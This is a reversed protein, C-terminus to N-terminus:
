DELLSTENYRPTLRRNRHFKAYIYNEFFYKAHNKKKDIMSTSPTFGLRLIPSCIKDFIEFIM